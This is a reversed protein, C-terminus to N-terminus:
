KIVKRGMFTASKLRELFFEDDIQFMCWDLPNVQYPNHVITDKDFLTDPLKIKRIYDRDKSKPNTTFLVSYSTSFESKGSELRSLTINIQNNLVRFKNEYDLNLDKYRHSKRFTNIYGLYVFLYEKYKIMRDRNKKLISGLRLMEDEYNRLLVGRVTIYEVFMLANGFLRERARRLSRLLEEHAQSYMDPYFDHNHIELNNYKSLLLELLHFIGIVKPTINVLSFIISAALYNQALALSEPLNPVSMYVGAKWIDKHNKITDSLDTNFEENKHEYVMGKTSGKSYLFRALNINDRTGFVVRTANSGKGKINPKPCEEDCDSISLEDCPSDAYDDDSSGYSDLDNDYRSIRECESEKMIREYACTTDCDFYSEMSNKSKPDDKSITSLERTVMEKFKNNFLGVMETSTSLICYLRLLENDTILQEGKNNNFGCINFLKHTPFDKAGLEDVIKSGYIKEPKVDALEYDQCPLGECFAILKRLPENELIFDIVKNRSYKDCKLERDKRITEKLLDENGRVIRGISNGWLGINNELLTNLETRKVFSCYCLKKICRLDENMSPVVLGFKEIFNFVGGYLIIGGTVFKYHKVDRFWGEMTSLKTDLDKKEIVSEYVRKFVDSLEIAFDRWEEPSDESLKECASMSAFYEHTKEYIIDFSQAEISRIRM